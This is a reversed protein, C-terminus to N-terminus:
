AHPPSSSALSRRSDRCRERRQSPAMAELANRFLNVLVQQIQVRDALVLDAEPNLNFRLQVNQERLANVVDATTHNRVALKEPDLWVRM